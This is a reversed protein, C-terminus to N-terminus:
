KNYRLLFDLKNAVFLQKLILDNFGSDMQSCNNCLWVPLLAMCCTSRTQASPSFHLGHPPWQNRLIKNARKNATDVRDTLSTGQLMLMFVNFLRGKQQYLHGINGMNKLILFKRRAKWMCSLFGHVYHCIRKCKLSCM